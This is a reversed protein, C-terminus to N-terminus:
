AIYKEESVSSSKQSPTVMTEPKEKAKALLDTLYAIQTMLKAENGSSPQSAITAKAQPAEKAESRSLLDTLYSIEQIMKSSKKLEAEFKAESRKLLDSMYTIESM